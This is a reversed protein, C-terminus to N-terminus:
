PLVLGHREACLGWYDAGSYDFRRHGCIRVETLQNAEILEAPQEEAVELGKLVRERLLGLRQIKNGLRRV